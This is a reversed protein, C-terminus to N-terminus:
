YTPIRTSSVSLVLNIVDSFFRNYKLSYIQHLTFLDVSREIITRIQCISTMMSLTPYVYEGFIELRQEENSDYLSSLINVDMEKVKMDNLLPLVENVISIPDPKIEPNDFVDIWEKFLKLQTSQITVMFGLPQYKERPITRFFAIIQRTRVWSEMTLM